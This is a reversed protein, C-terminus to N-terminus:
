IVKVTLLSKGFGHLFKCADTQYVKLSSTYSVTLAHRAKINKIESHKLNKTIDHVPIFKRNKAKGSVVWCLNTKMRGLHRVLLLIVDTDGESVIVNKWAEVNVLHRILRTDAKEYNSSLDSLERGSSSAVETENKFGGSLIVEFGFDFKLAEDGLFRALDANNESLTLFTVTM